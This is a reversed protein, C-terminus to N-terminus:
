INQSVRHEVNINLFGKLRIFRLFRVLAIHVSAVLPVSVGAAQPLMDLVVALLLLLLDLHPPVCAALAPGSVVAHLAPQVRLPGVEGQEAGHNTVLGLPRRGNTLARRRCVITAATTLVVLLAPSWVHGADPSTPTVM